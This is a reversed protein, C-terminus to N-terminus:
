LGRRDGAFVGLGNQLFLQTCPTWLFHCFLANYLGPLPQESRQLAQFYRWARKSISVCTLPMHFPCLVHKFAAFCIIQVIQSSILGTWFEGHWEFGVALCVKTVSFFWIITEFARSNARAYHASRVTYTNFFSLESLKEEVTCFYADEKYATTVAERVSIVNELALFFCCHETGRVRARTSISWYKRVPVCRSPFWSVTFGVFVKLFETQISFIGVCSELACCVECEDPATSTQRKTCMHWSPAKLIQQLGCLILAARVPLVEHPQHWDSESSICFRDRLRSFQEGLNNLGAADLEHHKICFRDGLLFAMDRQPVDARKWTHAVHKVPKYCIEATEGTVEIGFYLPVLRVLNLAQTSPYIGCSRLYFSELVTM